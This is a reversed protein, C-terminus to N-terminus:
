EKLHSLNQFNISSKSIEDVLLDILLFAAM